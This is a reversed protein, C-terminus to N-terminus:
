WYTNLQAVSATGYQPLNYNSLMASAFKFINGFTTINQVDWNQLNRNITTNSLFMDNMNTVNSVNWNAISPNSFCYYFIRAMNKVNSTDWKQLGNLERQPIDSLKGSFMERMSTVNTVDWSSLNRSAGQTGFDSQTFM